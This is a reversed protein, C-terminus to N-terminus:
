PADLLDSADRLSMILKEVLLDIRSELDYTGSQLHQRIELVKGRRFAPVAQEAGRAPCGASVDMWRDESDIAYADSLTKGAPELTTLTAM